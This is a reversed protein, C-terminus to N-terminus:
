SKTKVIQVNLKIVYLQAKNMDGVGVVPCLIAANMTANEPSELTSKKAVLGLILM